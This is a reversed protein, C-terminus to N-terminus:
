QQESNCVTALYDQLTKGSEEAYTEKMVQLKHIRDIRFNRFDDRLECWSTLTWVKGWFFLGLPWVKRQSTKGDERTYDFHIKNHKRISNRLQSFCETIESPLFFSPALIEERCLEPRLHEPIIAEIKELVKVASNSLTQDSWAQVMRTGLLLAALEDPTFMLPPLDFGQMLLYGRGPESIIPIGSLSLTDIDRYITRVSVTFEDALHQATTVRNHRLMQIIQFLRDTRNM